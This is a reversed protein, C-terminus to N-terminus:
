AAGAQTAEAQAALDWLRVAEGSVEVGTERRLLRSIALYSVGAQRYGDIWPSLPQNLRQEAVQRPPANSTV